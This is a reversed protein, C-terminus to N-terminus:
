DDSPVNTIASPNPGVAISAPWCARMLRSSARARQPVVIETDLNPLAFSPPLVGVIDRTEGNLNVARGIVAPDQAYRRSWLGFSIVVVGRAGNRDDEAILTRGLFPRVGLMGFASASM